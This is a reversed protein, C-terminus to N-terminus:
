ATNSLRTQKMVLNGLMATVCPEINQGTCSIKWGYVGVVGVAVGWHDQVDCEAGRTWNQVSILLWCVLSLVEGECVPGDRCEEGAFVQTQCCFSSLCIIQGSWSNEIPCSGPSKAVEAKLLSTIPHRSLGSTIIINLITLYRGWRTWPKPNEFICCQHTINYKNVLCWQKMNRHAFELM